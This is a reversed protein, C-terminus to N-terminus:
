RSQQFSVSGSARRLSMSAGPGRVGAVDVRQGLRVAPVGDVRGNGGRLGLEGAEDERQRPRDVGVVALGAEGPAQAGVAGLRQDDPGVHRDGIVVAPEDRDQTEEVLHGGSGFSGSGTPGGAPCRGEV